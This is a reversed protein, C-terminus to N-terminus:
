HRWLAAVNKHRTCSMGAAAASLVNKITITETNDHKQTNPAVRSEAEIRNITKLMNLWIELSFIWLIKGKKFFIYVAPTPQFQLREGERTGEGAWKLTDYDHPIFSNCSSHASQETRSVSWKDTKTEMWGHMRRNIWMDMMKMKAPPPALFFVLLFLFHRTAPNRPFVM